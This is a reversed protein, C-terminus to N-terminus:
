DGFPSYRYEFHKIVELKTADKADPASFDEVGEPFRFSCWTGQNDRLEWCEAIDKILPNGEM